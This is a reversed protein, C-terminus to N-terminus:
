DQIIHALKGVYFEALEFDALTNIDVSRERPMVYPRSIRGFLDGQMIFETKTLYIACNRKYVKELSHRPASTKGEEEVLPFILDDRIIKLKKLSFDSLEVMSMVSDSETDVIKEICRDIDEAVRLPSTPQLIMVYDYQENRNEKLFNVAHQIVQIGESWDQALESPRMFPVSAGLERSMKAIEVNDTSVLFYTLRKSKKAAAITYVILPKGGLNKINKRPVDKSGGRAPIVGLIKRNKYM